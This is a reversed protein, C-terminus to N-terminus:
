VRLEFFWGLGGHEAVEFAAEAVNENRTDQDGHRDGEGQEDEVEQKFKQVVKDDGPEDFRQDFDAGGDRFIKAQWLPSIFFLTSNVNKQAKL